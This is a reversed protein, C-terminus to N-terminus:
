RVPSPVDRVGLVNGWFLQASVLLIVVTLPLVWLLAQGSRLLIVTLPTTCMAVVFMLMRISPPIQLSLKAQCGPCRKAELANWISFRSIAHDCFPCNATTSLRYEPVSTKEIAAAQDHTSQPPEYPNTM